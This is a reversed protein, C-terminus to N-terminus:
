RDALHIAKAKRLQSYRARVLPADFQGLAGAVANDRCVRRAHTIQRALVGLAPQGACARDAAQGVRVLLIDVDRQRRLDLDAVPVVTRVTTIRDDPRSWAPQSAGCLALAGLLIPLTQPSM